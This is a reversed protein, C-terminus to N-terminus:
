WGVFFRAKNNGSYYTSRFYSIYYITTGNNNTDYTDIVLLIKM